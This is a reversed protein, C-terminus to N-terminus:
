KIKKNQSNGGLEEFFASTPDQCSKIEKLFVDIFDRFFSSIVFKTLIKLINFKRRKKSWRQYDDSYSARHEQVAQTFLNRFNDLARRLSNYGSWEPIIHKLWPIFLVPAGGTAMKEFLRFYLPTIPRFVLFSQLILGEKHM